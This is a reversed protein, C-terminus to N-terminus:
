LFHCGRGKVDRSEERMKKNSELFRQFVNSIVLYHFHPFFSVPRSSCVWNPENNNFLYLNFAYANNKCNPNENSEKKKFIDIFRLFCLMDYNIISTRTLHLSPTTGKKKKMTIANEIMTAEEKNYCCQVGGKTAVMLWGGGNKKKEGSSKKKM